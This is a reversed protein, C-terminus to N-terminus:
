GVEGHYEAKLITIERILQRNRFYFYSVIGVLILMVSVNTAAGTQPLPQSTMEIQKAPTPAPLNVVVLNGYVNNMKLDFSSPDSASVPTTPIPSKVKVQFKETLTAGAAIDTAAWTLIGTSPNLTGGRNDTLDAYELIDNIQETVVYGIYAASGTNTTSLSYDIVDGAQATTGNADRQSGDTAATLVASKAQSINPTGPPPPPPGACDLDAQLSAVLQSIKQKALTQAAAQAKAQSVTSLASANTSVSQKHSGNPCAVSGSAAATAKFETPKKIHVVHCIENSFLKPTDPSDLRGQNCFRRGDSANDKVKVKVDFHGYGSAGLTPIKFIAFYGDPWGDIGQHQGHFSDIHGSAGHVSLDSVSVVDVPDPIRDAIVVQHAAGEGTNQFKVRFSIQDGPQVPENQTPGDIVAKTIQLKPKGPTTDIITLNGCEYLFGIFAGDVARHGILAGQNQNAWPWDNIPRLWYTNGGVNVQQDNAFYHNRGISKLGPTNVNVSGGHTAALDARTIGYYAFLARFGSHGYSDHDSDYLSLLTQRPNSGLGGYVLDNPSVANVNTPPAVVTALQLVMLAAAMVVSLQRTLSEGRLRRAYFALQSTSAPSLSLNSVINRFM